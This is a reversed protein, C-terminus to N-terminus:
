GKIEIIDTPRLPPTLAITSLYYQWGSLQGAQPNELAFERHEGWQEFRPSGLIGALNEGKKGVVRLVDDPQQVVTPSFRGSVFVHDSFSFGSKPHVSADFLGRADVVGQAHPSYDTWGDGYPAGVALDIVAGPPLNSAGHVRVEDKECARAELALYFTPAAPPSPQQGSASALLTGLTIAMFGANIRRTM